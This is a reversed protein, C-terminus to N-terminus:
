IAKLEEIADDASDADASCLPHTIWKKKSCISAM